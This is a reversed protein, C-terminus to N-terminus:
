ATGRLSVAHGDFNWVWERPVDRARGLRACCRKRQLRRHLPQERLNVQPVRLPHRLLFPSNEAAAAVVVLVFAVVVVVAVAVVLELEPILLYCDVPSVIAPELTNTQEGGRPAGRNEGQRGSQVM